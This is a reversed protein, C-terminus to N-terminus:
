SEHKLAALEQWFYLFIQLSLRKLTHDIAIAVEDFGNGFERLEHAITDLQM